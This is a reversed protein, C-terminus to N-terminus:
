FVAVIGLVKRRDVKRPSTDVVTSGFHDMVLVHGDVRVVFGIATPEAAAIEAVKQRIGGVTANRPLKSARSRVSFGARRLTNMWVNQKTRNNYTVGQVGFYRLAASACPTSLLVPMFEKEVISRWIDVGRGVFLPFSEGRYLSM